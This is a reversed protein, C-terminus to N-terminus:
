AARDRMRRDVLDREISEVQREIVRVRSSVNLKQERAERLALRLRELVPRNARDEMYSLRGQEWRRWGDAVVERLDGEELADVLDLAAAPNGTYHSEASAVDEASSAKLPDRRSPEVDYLPLKRRLLRRPQRRDVVDFRM